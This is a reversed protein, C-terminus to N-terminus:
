PAIKLGLEPRVLIYNEGRRYFQFGHGAIATAFADGCGPRYDEHLEIILIKVLRLWSGQEAEFVEKEAGEIDMKLIDISLWSKSSVIDVLTFSNVLSDSANSNEMVQFSDKSNGKLLNLKGKSSWM